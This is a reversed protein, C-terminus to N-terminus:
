KDTELASTTHPIVASELSAATTQLANKQALCLLVTRTVPGSLLVVPSTQGLPLTHLSQLAMWQTVAHITCHSVSVTFITILFYHVELVTAKDISIKNRGLLLKLTVVQM